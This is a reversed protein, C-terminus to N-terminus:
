ILKALVTEYVFTHTYTHTTYLKFNYDIHMHARLNHSASVNYRGRLLARVDEGGGSGRKEQKGEEMGEAGGM